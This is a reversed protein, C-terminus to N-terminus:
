RAPLLLPDRNSSREDVVRGDEEGVFRSSVEVRFARQIDNRKDACEVHFASERDNEYRMFTVNGRVSVANDRQSISHDDSVNPVLPSRAIVWKMMKGCRGIRQSIM